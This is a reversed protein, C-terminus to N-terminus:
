ASHNRNREICGIQPCPLALRVFVFRKPAINDVPTHTAFFNVFPNLQAHGLASQQELLRALHNQLPIATGFRQLHGFIDLQM